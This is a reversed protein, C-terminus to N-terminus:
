KKNWLNRLSEKIKEIASNEDEKEMPEEEIYEEEEFDYDEDVYDSLQRVNKEDKKPAYVIEDMSEEITHKDNIQDELNENNNSYDTAIVTICIEGKNLNKDTTTGFIIKADPHVQEQIREAITQVEKMSVENRTRSAISYLVRRTGRLSSELLPSAIARTVGVEAKTAGRANGIGILARGSQKMIAAVDAFDINIDGPKTILRAIGSVANHLVEDSKSFAESLSTTEDSTALITDNPIIILADSYEELKSIGEEAIERRKVGEFSFPRTIVSVTLIGLEQATKAIIPSAGTGTGGGMGCAIFLIDSGSLSQRIEDRAEMAAKEGIVPNMGAGLGQSTKAGLHIKKNAKAKHLDQLDTNAVIFEVGELGSKIMYNVANGGSGGVGIVRIRAPTGTQKIMELMPKVSKRVVKKKTTKTARKKTVKKKPM